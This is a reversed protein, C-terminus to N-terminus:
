LLGFIAYVSLSLITAIFAGAVVQPLTHKHRRMRAWAILPAAILLWLWSHHLLIATTMISGVFSALHVSVKWFLTILYFTIGTALLSATMALIERPAHLLFLLMLLLLSSAISVLFPGGRQERKALHIDSYRGQKVGLYIFLFPILGAFMVWLFAWSISKTTSNAYHAIVLLPIVIVFIYPSSLASIYFAVRDLANQTSSDKM